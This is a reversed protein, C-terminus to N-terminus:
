SLSVSIFTVTADRNAITGTTPIATKEGPAVVASSGLLPARRTMFSHVCYEPAAPANQVMVDDLM